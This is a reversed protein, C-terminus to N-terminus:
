GQSSLNEVSFLGGGPYPLVDGCLYSGQLFRPFARGTQRHYDHSLVGGGLYVHPLLFFGTGGHSEAGKEMAQGFLRLLLLKQMEELLHVAIGADVADQNLKRQRFM